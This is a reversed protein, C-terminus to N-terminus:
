GCPALIHSTSDSSTSQSLLTKRQRQFGVSYRNSYSRIVKSSASSYTCYTLHPDIPAPVSITREGIRKSPLLKTAQKVLLGQVNHYKTSKLRMQGGEKKFSPLKQKWQLKVRYKAIAALKQTGIPHYLSVTARRPSVGYSRALM